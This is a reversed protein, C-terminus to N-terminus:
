EHSLGVAESTQNLWHNIDVVVEQAECVEAELQLTPHNIAFEKELHKQVFTHSHEDM